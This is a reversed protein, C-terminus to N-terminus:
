VLKDFPLINYKTFADFASITPDILKVAKKQVRTIDDMLKKQIMTGWISLCYCLNSHIQGFYLLRKAKSTLLNQSRKLMGLGCRLKIILKKVHVDWDLRDDIWTGLLKAFQVRPISVNNFTLDM